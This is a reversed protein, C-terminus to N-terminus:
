GWHIILIDLKVNLNKKMEKIVNIGSSENLSIFIHMANIYTKKIKFISYAKNIEKWNSM